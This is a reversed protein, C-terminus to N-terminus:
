LWYDFQMAAWEKLREGLPRQLWAPLLVELSDRLDEAFAAEMASGFAEDIVIVNLESNHLFSRTDMNASGVTSWHGDIVATKAHLVAERMQFLRIGGRLMPEFLAHSAYFVMGGEPVGPVVIKVDVGRRAADTLAELMAADPVFYAATLYIRQRAAHIAQIYAEYIEMQGHPESAVVRVAKSGMAPLPPFVEAGAVPQDSLANWTQLFVTQLAAVAPGEIQLHTDRWGVSSNDRHRSHFLSSNSYTESINVGGTFGIRGDVVLIKRHDRNNPLWPGRLKFPNVPNVAHLEIGAARLREFFADPTGLTGVSDYLIRVKVGARQRVMLLEAFHQGVPDQDFIYTELHISSQASLVAAEMAAMTQPGDFLLSVKNGGQLPSELGAPHAGAEQLSACGGLLLTLLLMPLLLLASHSHKM